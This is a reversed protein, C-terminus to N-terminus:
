WEFRERHLQAEPLGAAAAAASVADMWEEPGCAFVDYSPLGPVLRCLAASDDEDALAEPLWSSRGAPRAGILYHVATGRAAALADLEARFVVDPESRARYILVDGGSTSAFEELLARLPVIGIGAALLAARPRARRAATLRGYPGEFLVWTGPRLGALRGSDPGCERATIRLRNGEPAASLSYPHGRSWGPGDLFRWVFYQGAQARLRDLRRGALHITVVDPAERVVSTVTLGHRFARALPLGIRFVVLAAAAVGYATWWYARAAPSTIFDAGAWLQHPLALGIGLYAYLHLLHWSEYRLRRRARRASSVGVILLALTGAAALLTGPYQTVLVWLERVPGSGELLAYGATVLVLHVGLLGFSWMGLLRHRRVLDDQGYRRELAPVRAMLLVQVLLLNSSVLGSLRAASLAVQTASADLDGLGPGAAWLGAVVLTSALCGAWLLDVRPARAEAHRPAGRVARGVPEATM